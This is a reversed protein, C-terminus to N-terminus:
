QSVDKRCFECRTLLLPVARGIEPAQGHASSRPLLRAVSSVIDRAFARRGRIAARIPRTWDNAAIAEAVEPTLRRLDDLVRLLRSLDDSVDVLLEAVARPGLRCIHEVGLVLRKRDTPRLGYAGRLPTPDVTRM